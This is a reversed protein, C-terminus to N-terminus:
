PKEIIMLAPNADSATKKMRYVGPGYITLAINSASVQQLTGDLYVPVWGGDGSGDIELDFTDGDGQAIAATITQPQNQMVTIPTSVDTVIATTALLEKYGSKAM